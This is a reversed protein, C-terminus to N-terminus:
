KSFMKLEQCLMETVKIATVWEMDKMTLGTRTIAQAAEKSIHIKWAGQGIKGKQPAKKDEVIPKRETALEAVTKSVEDKTYFVINDPIFKTGSLLSVSTTGNKRVSNMRSVIAFISPIPLVEPLASHLTNKCAHLSGTLLLYKGSGKHAQVQEFAQKNFLTGFEKESLHKDAYTMGLPTKLLPFVKIGHGHAKEVLSVLSPKSHLEERHKFMGEYNYGADRMVQILHSSELLLVYLNKYEIPDIKTGPPTKQYAELQSMEESYNSCFAELGISTLGAKKLAPLAGIILRASDPESHDEGVVVGEHNSLLQVMLNIDDTFRAKM